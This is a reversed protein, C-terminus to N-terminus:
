LNEKAWEAIARLDGLTLDTGFRAEDGLSDISDLLLMADDSHSAFGEVVKRVDDLAKVANGSPVALKKRVKSKM